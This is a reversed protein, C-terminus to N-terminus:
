FPLDGDDEDDVSEGILRNGTNEPQDVFTTLGDPDDSQPPRSVGKLPDRGIPSDPAVRWTRPQGKKGGADVVTVRQTTELARLHGRVTDESLHTAAALSAASWVTTGMAALIQERTIESKGHRLLPAAAPVRSPDADVVLAPPEPSLKLAIPTPTEGDRQKQCTLTLEGDCNELLFVTDSCDPVKSSGKPRQKDPDWPTHHGLLVTAGTERQLRDCAAVVLAGVADDNGDGPAMRSLTDLAIVVPMPGLTGSHIQALFASVAAADLLNVVGPVFTVGVTEDAAVRHAARWAAVRPKM